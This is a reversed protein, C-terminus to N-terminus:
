IIKQLAHSKVMFFVIVDLSFVLLKGKIPLPMVSGNLLRVSTCTSELVFVFARLLFQNLETSQCIYRRSAHKGAM